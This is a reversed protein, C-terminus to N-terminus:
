PDNKSHGDSRHENDNRWDGGGAGYWRGNIKVAERGDWDIFGAGDPADEDPMPLSYHHFPPKCVTGDKLKLGIVTITENGRM